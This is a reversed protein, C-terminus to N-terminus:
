NRYTDIDITAGVSNLFSIVNEDFGIAPTSKTEDSTIWLVVSLVANLGLTNKALAIKEEHPRLKAVLTASMDYIDIVDNEVKGLSYKWWTHKPIPDKKLKTTTPAIGILRTVADPDFENGYLAFYVEAENTM